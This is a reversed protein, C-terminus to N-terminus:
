KILNISRINIGMFCDDQCGKPIFGALSILGNNDQKFLVEADKRKLLWENKAKEYIQDLTWINKIQSKTGLENKNEKWQLKEPSLIGEDSMRKIDDDTYGINKFADIAIATTWGGEPKQIAGIREYTYSRSEITGNIVEIKYEEAHGVWSSAYTIYNYSNNNDKKFQQFAEYSKDFDNQNSIDDKACSAFLIVSLLYILKRM